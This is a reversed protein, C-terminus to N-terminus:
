RRKCRPGVACRDLEINAVAHKFHMFIVVNDM